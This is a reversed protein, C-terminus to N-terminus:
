VEETSPPRPHAALSAAVKPEVFFALFPIVGSFFMAALQPMTPTFYRYLPPICVILYALFIVGHLPSFAHAPTSPGGAVQVIVLVTLIVLAVGVVMAGIRYRRLAQAALAEV